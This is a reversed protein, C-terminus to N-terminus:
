GGSPPVVSLSPVPDDHSDGLESFERYGPWSRPAQYDYTKMFELLTKSPGDEVDKLMEVTHEFISAAVDWEGAEYNVYGIEFEQCFELTYVSRMRKIYKDSAFHEHVIYDADLKELKLEERQQRDRYKYGNKRRKEDYDVCLAKCDLDVTFIRTPAKSGQPMVNDIARFYYAFAKSCARVVAESMIMMVKFHKTVTELSMAM